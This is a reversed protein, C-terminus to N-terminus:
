DPGVEEFSVVDDEEYIHLEKHEFLVEEGQHDVVHVGVAEEHAEDAEDAEDVLLAAGGVGLVEAVAGVDLLPDQDQRHVELVDDV